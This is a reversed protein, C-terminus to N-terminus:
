SFITRVRDGQRSKKAYMLAFYGTGNITTRDYKPGINKDITRPRILLWDREDDRSQMFPFTSINTGGFTTLSLNCVPNRATFLTLM